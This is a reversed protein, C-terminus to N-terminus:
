GFQKNYEAEQANLRRALETFSFQNKPIEVTIVVGPALNYETLVSRELQGRAGIDATERISIISEKKLM